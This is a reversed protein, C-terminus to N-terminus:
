FWRKKLPFRHTITYSRGDFLSLELAEVEGKFPIFGKKFHQYMETLDIENNFYLSVHPLYHTESPSTWKDAVYPLSDHVRQYLEALTKNNDVEIAILAKDILKVDVFNLSFPNYKKSLKRITKVLKKKEALPYHAITLHPYFLRYPMNFDKQLTKITRVRMATAEDLALLVYYDELKKNSM